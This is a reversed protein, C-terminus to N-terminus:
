SCPSRLFRANGGRRKAMIEDNGDAGRIKGAESTQKLARRIKEMGSGDDVNIVRGIVFVEPV